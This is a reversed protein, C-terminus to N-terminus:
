VEGHFARRLLQAPLAEIGKRMGAIKYHLRQVQEDGAAMRNVLDAQQDVSPVPVELARLMGLTVRPRTAGRLMGGLERRATPSNLYAVLFGANLVEGNTRVRFCDAKVIAPGLNVPIVCARGAPRAGDGLAAIVVDGGRVSHRQLRAFHDLPVYAKDSDL